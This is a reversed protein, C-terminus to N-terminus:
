TRRPDDARDREGRDQVGSAGRCRRVPGWASTRSDHDALNFFWLARRLSRPRRSPPRVGSPIGWSTFRQVCPIVPRGCLMRARGHAALEAAKRLARQHDAVFDYLFPDLLM